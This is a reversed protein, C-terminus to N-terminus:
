GRSLLTAITEVSDAMLEIEPDSELTIAPAVPAPAGQRLAAALRELTDAIRDRFAALAARPSPRQDLGAHLALAGVAYRRAAALIGLALDPDIRRTTEPEGLMREVSAEANSRALRAADRSHRAADPNWTSPDVYMGLMVRADRALNELLVALAERARYSEWTPWVAYVLLALLGGAVTDILRYRAATAGAVGSLTLLLVVYATFSLTFLTYNVRFLAYGAWVCTLLLLTLVAHHTGLLRLLLTALAAGVLTGLIRATGTVFTERFEPKLVILATMALWYGRPIAALLYLATAAGVAIALRLAHRCAASRRTLNARLTTLADRIPPITQTRVPPRGTAQGGVGEATRWAARLRTVVTRLRMGDSATDLRDWAHLPRPARGEGIAAALEDLLLAVDEAAGPDRGPSLSWAALATRLREAEDVLAQFVLAEGHRAFPHPDRHLSALAPEVDPRPPQAYDATTLKRAYHALGRFLGSVTQRESSFRRLPWVSVVFVTQLLGGALVLAGRVAASAVDTPYAEALIVAIASQLGIFGGAPGFAVLLGGAFAWAAAVAIELPIVGGSLSGVVISLAMGASALLMIAARSRYAGQFSGFGVSVAGVAIFTAAGPQNLLLAGVLPIGVGITCRLAAVPESRTRDISFVASAIQQPVSPM